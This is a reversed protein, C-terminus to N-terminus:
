GRRSSGVATGTTGAAIPGKHRLGRAGRFELQLHGREPLAGAREPLGGRHRPGAGAPMSSAANASSSPAISAAARDAPAGPSPGAPRAPRSTASTSRRSSRAINWFAGTASNRSSRSPVIRRALLRAPSSSPAPTPSRWRCAASRRRPGATGPRPANGARRRRGSRCPPPADRARQEALVGHDVRHEASSTMWSAPSGSRTM